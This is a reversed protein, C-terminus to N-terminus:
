LSSERTTLDAPMEVIALLIMAEMQRNSSALKLLANAMKGSVPKELRLDWYTKDPDYDFETKDKM